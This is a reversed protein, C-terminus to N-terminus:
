GKTNYQRKRAENQALMYKMSDEKNMKNTSGSSRVHVFKILALLSELHWKEFEVPINYIIMWYYITEATIVENSAKSAGIRNDTFTAATSPNEIYTIIEKLSEPPMFSLKVLDLNGSLSMCNIYDLLEIRTKDFRRDLFPKHWKAEWKRVSILSHELKIRYEPFWLFKQEKESWIDHVEPLKLELM